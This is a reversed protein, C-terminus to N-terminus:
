HSPFRGGGYGGLGPGMQQTKCHGYGLRDDHSSLQPQRHRHSGLGAQGAHSLPGGRDGVAPEPCYWAPTPLEQATLSLQHPVTQLGGIHPHVVALHLVPDVRPYHLATISNLECHSTLGLGRIKM